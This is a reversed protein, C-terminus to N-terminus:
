LHHLNCLVTNGQRNLGVADDHAWQEITEDYHFLAPEATKLDNLETICLNNLCVTLTAFRKFRLGSPLLKISPSLGFSCAHDGALISIQVPTDLAGQPVRLCTGFIPSRTDTVSVMGGEPGIISTATYDDITLSIDGSTSLVDLPAYQEALQM